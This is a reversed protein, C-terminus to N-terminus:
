VVSKVKNGVLLHPIKDEAGRDLTKVLNDLCSLNDELEEPEEFSSLDFFILAGNSGRYFVQVYIICVRPYSFCVIGLECALM